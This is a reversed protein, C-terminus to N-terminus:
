RRAQPRHGPGALQRVRARGDPYLESVDRRQQIEDVGARHVVRDSGVVDGPNTGGYLYPQKTDAVLPDVSLFAAANPDYHRNNLYHLGTTTDRTEGLFRDDGIVGTDEARISGYPDYAVRSVTTTTHDVSATTSGHHDTILWAVDIGDRIAVTDDDIDYSRIASVVGATTRTIETSELSLTVSGDPTQRLLRQGAQDYVNVTPDATGVTTTELRGYVDWTYVSDDGDADVFATRNGATDYTYTDVGGATTIQTPAYPQTPDYQYGTGAPGNVIRNVNDFSYTNNMPAPGGASPGSCSSAGTTYASTLRQYTDYGFCSLEGVVVDNIQTPIGATDYSYRVDSVVTTDITATTSTVRMTAPDRQVAHQVIATGTIDNVQRAALAGDDFFTSAKVYRYDGTLTAAQGTTNFGTIVTEASLGGVAPLSRSVINDADDYSVGFTYSGALPNTGDTMGAVEDVIYTSGQPRNRNDYGNTDVRLIRTGDGDWTEVFDALGKEGPADYGFVALLEGTVSGARRETVRGLSDYSQFSPATTPRRHCWGVRLMTSSHQRGRTRNM